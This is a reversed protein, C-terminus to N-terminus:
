LGKSCRARSPSACQDTPRGLGARVRNSHVSMYARGYLGGPISFGKEWLFLKLYLTCSPAHIGRGSSGAPGGPELAGEHVRLSLTRRLTNFKEGLSFTQNKPQVLTCARGRQLDGEAAAGGGPLDSLFARQKKDTDRNQATKECPRTRVAVRPLVSLDSLFFGLSRKGPAPLRGGLAPRRPPYNRGLIEKLSFKIDSKDTKGPRAPECVRVSPGASLFVV